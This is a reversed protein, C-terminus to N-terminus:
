LTVIFEMEKEGLLFRERLVRVKVTDGHKKYLLFIKIDDMSEIRIDGLSIIIDNEKLGAKESM